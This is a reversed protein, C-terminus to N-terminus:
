VNEPSQVAQEAAAAEALLCARLEEQEQRAKRKLTAELVQQEQQEKSPLVKRLNEGIVKKTKPDIEWRRRAVVLLKKGVEYDTLGYNVLEKNLRKAIQGLMVIDGHAGPAGTVNGNHLYPKFQVEDSPRCLLAELASLLSNSKKKLVIDSFNRVIINM